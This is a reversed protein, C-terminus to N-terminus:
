DDDARRRQTERWSRWVERMTSMFAGVYIWPGIMRWGGWIWAKLAAWLDGLAKGLRRGQGALTRAEMKALEDEIIDENEDTM